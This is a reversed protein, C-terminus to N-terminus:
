FLNLLFRFQLPVMKLNHPRDKLIYLDAIAQDSDSACGVGYVTDTPYAVLKGDLMAQAALEIQSDINPNFMGQNVKVSYIM